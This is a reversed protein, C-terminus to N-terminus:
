RTRGVTVPSGAGAGNGQGALGQEAALAPRGAQGEHGDVSQQGAASAVTVPEYLGETSAGRGTKWLPSSSAYAFIGELAGLAVLGVIIIM